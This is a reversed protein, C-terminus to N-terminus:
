AGPHSFPVIMNDRWDRDLNLLNPAGFKDFVPLTLAGPLPKTNYGPDGIGPVVGKQRYASSLRAQRFYCAIAIYNGYHIM